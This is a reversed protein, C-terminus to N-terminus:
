LTSSIGPTAVSLFHLVTGALILGVKIQMLKLFKFHESIRIAYSLMQYINQIKQFDYIDFVPLFYLAMSSLIRGVKIQMLKLFILHESIRTAYSLMQYQSDYIDFKLDFEISERAKWSHLVSILWVDISLESKLSKFLADVSWYHGSM